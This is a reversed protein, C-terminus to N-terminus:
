LLAALAALFRDNDEPLATTIRMYGEGLHRDALPKVLIDRAKLAEALDAARHPAFDALFFYTRTPYTRVGLRRLRAALDETWDRLQAVRRRIEEEHELTAIAAAQSPRALPYADNHRNLDDAIAEPFVGYGFRFGALSHAKSLTRGPARVLHSRAPCGHNRDRRRPTEIGQWPGNGRPGSQGGDSVSRGGTQPDPLPRRLRRGPPPRIRGFGITTESGDRM